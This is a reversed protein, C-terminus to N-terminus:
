ATILREGTPESERLGYWRAAHPTELEFQDLVRAVIHDIMEV